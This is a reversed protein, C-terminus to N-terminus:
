VKHHVQLSINLVRQLYQQFKKKVKHGLSKKGKSPNLWSFLREGLKILHTSLSIMAQEYDCFTIASITNSLKILPEKIM